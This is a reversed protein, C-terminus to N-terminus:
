GHDIKCRDPVVDFFRPPSSQIIEQSGIHNGDVLIDFKAGNRSREGSDYTVILVMPSGAEVPLDFSLWNRSWRGPRGRVRRVRADEAGQFNFNREPQMEGPQAYAVTAKELQRKREQESVYDAKKLGRNLPHLCTLIYLM